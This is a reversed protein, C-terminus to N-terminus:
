QNHQQQLVFSEMQQILNVLVMLVGDSSVNNWSLFSETYPFVVSRRNMLLLYMFLASTFHGGIAFWNVKVYTPYSFISCKNNNNNNNNSSVQVEDNMNNNTAGYESM